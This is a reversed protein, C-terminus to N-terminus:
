EHDTLSWNQRQKKEFGKQFSNDPLTIRFASGKGIKSEVEINGGMGEILNRSVYLGLGTGKDSSKTTFFPKFLNQLTRDDMGQGNDKVEIILRDSWGVGERVALEISSDPKDMAQSANVLLNILVQELAIPDSFILPLTKEMHLNFNKVTKNLHERCLSVAKAIVDEPNIRCFENQDRQCSFERLKAIFRSIRHSGHEINGILKFIDQRFESYPMGSLEYDPHRRAYDDLVPLMGHLYDRLIPINFTIFNNPNNIEHSIGSVLLGLSALKENQVFQRELIKERTMDSIRIITNGEEGSPSLPYLYLREHKNANGHPSLDFVAAEGTAIASIVPKSAKSGYRQQLYGRCSKGLMKRHEEAHFYDRAVSNVMVLSLKHDVTLLCDSIGDFVARLMNRSNEIQAYLEKKETIDHGVGQFELIRGQEDFFAKNTRQQWRIQGDPMLFRYEHTEVSNDPTLAFINRAITEPDPVPILSTVKLGLAEEPMIGFYQSLFRAHAENIFTITGDPLYRCIMETQNELIARYRSESKRLRNENENNLKLNKLHLNLKAQDFHNEPIERQDIYYHNEALHKEHVIWPHTYLIDVLLAPDFRRQDYQCMAICRSDPFHNNLRNEFERLFQSGPIVQLAWTVESTIRLANFGEQLAKGTEIRLLDIIADPYFTGNQLFIDQANLILLQGQQPCSSIEIGKQSLYDPIADPNHHDIIYIVKEGRDLGQSLFPSLVTRYEEETKYLFAIHDGPSLNKIEAAFLDTTM